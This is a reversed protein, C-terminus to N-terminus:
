FDKKSLSFPSRLTETHTSWGESHAKQPYLSITLGGSLYASILLARSQSKSPTFLGSDKVSLYLPQISAFRLFPSEPRSGLHDCLM